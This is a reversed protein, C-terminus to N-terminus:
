LLVSHLMRYFDFLPSQPNERGLARFLGFLSDYEQNFALTLSSDIISQHLSPSFRANAVSVCLACLLFIKNIKCKANQM